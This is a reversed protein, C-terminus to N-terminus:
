VKHKWLKKLFNKKLERRTGFFAVDTKSEEHNDYKLAAHEIGCAFDAIQALRYHSPDADRYM